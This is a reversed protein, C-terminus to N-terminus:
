KQVVRSQTRRTGRVPRAAVGDADPLAQDLERLLKRVTGPSLHRTLTVLRQRPSDAPFTVLDLLDVGLHQALQNLTNATPRLLGRELDSLHGKSVLESEYALKELTLGAAERLTRVRLGIAQALPDPVRRRPM